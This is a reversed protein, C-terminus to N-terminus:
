GNYGEIRLKIEFEFNDILKLNHMIKLNDDQLRKIIMDYRPIKRTTLLKPSKKLMKQKEFLDKLIVLVMKSGPRGRGRVRGRGGGVGGTTM